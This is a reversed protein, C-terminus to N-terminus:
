DRNFYDLLALINNKITELLEKSSCEVKIPYLRAKEIEKTNVIVNSTEFHRPSIVEGIINYLNLIPSYPERPVTVAIIWISDEDVLPSIYLPREYLDSLLTKKWMKYFKHIMKDEWKEILKEKEEDMDEGEELIPPSEVYIDEINESSEYDTVLVLARPQPLSLYIPTVMSLVTPVEDKAYNPVILALLRTKARNSLEPYLLITINGIKFTNTFPTVTDRWAIISM